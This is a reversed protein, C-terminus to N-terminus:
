LESEEQLDELRVGLVNSLRRLEDQKPKVRRNEIRSLRSECITAKHALEWQPIDQELRIRKLKTLAM